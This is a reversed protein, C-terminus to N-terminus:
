AVAGAVMVSVAASGSIQVRTLAQSTPFQNMFIGQSRVKEGAGAVTQNLTPFGLIANITTVVISGLDGTLLGQLQIQGSAAVSAPLYLLGAVIAAQNIEDVCNQASQAAVTFTVPVAVGDATFAFTEGGSFTTPFTGGVGVLKAVDAGILLEVESAGSDVFLFEIASFGGSVPLEVYAAGIAGPTSIQVSCDTSKVAGFTKGACQFSLGQTKNSAGGTPCGCSDGPVAITGSLTLQCNAM